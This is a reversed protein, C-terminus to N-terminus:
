THLPEKKGKFFDYGLLQEATPRKTRDVVFIDKIMKMFDPDSDPLTYKAQSINLFTRFPSKEDDFPLSNYVMEYAMVGFAWIDNTKFFPESPDVVEPAMFQPSGVSRDFPKKASLGFDGIKPIINGDKTQCLLVNEPKIDNHSIGNDHICKLGILVQELLYRIQEMPPKGIGMFYDYIEGLCLEFIFVYKGNSTEFNDYINLVNPCVLGKLNMFGDYEEQTSLAMEDRKEQSRKKHSERFAVANGKEDEAKYVTAYSGSSIKKILTYKKSPLNAM